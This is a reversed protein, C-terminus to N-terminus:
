ASQKVRQLLVALARVYQSDKMVTMNAPKWNQRETSPIEVVYDPEIGKRHIQYGKPTVLSGITIIMVSGHSLEEGSHVKGRGFTTTGVLVARRNDQLAAALVETASATGNNVLVVVPKDTLRTGSARIQELIGTRGKLTAVQEKHLFMSAIETCTKLSGGPNNRLDLIFGDVNKNLLEKVANHMEGSANPTFQSLAIYGINKGMERKLEFRVPQVKIAERRLPLNFTQSGDRRITLLVQTGAKGQLKSMAEDHSLRNTAVSDIAQVIDKPRLGAKAAPTNAIPTVVRLEKTKEDTEVSFDILGVGILEGNSDMEVRQRQQSDLLRTEPDHLKSLMTHIAEYTAQKSTYRRHLMEQRVQLWAQTNYNEGVFSREIAQWAKDVIQRYNNEAQTDTDKSALEKQLTAIAKNLEEIFESETTKALVAKLAALHATKLAREASVKVDPQVGIGEWNTKTLPNVARGTPVFIGFNNNIILFQGPNAGGATTEGVITARKLQQLNNAFEEAASFTDKSTLVYVNKNLYRKGPVYPLTWHQEIRDRYKGSTDKERWYLDNLHVLRDGFLYTSVLAVMDPSGGSNQRLDIILASTNSLFNMAAIAVEGADESPLFGRLDLYGINGELREVRHFGFNEWSLSRRAREREQPDTAKLRDDTAPFPKHSYFVNLHKDKAIAQIHSTLTRALQTASTISDYDRSQQRKRINAQIQKGVEPSVYGDLNKIVADIVKSRTEANITLDPQTSDSSLQSLSRTSHSLM